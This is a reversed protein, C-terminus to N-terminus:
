AERHDACLTEYEERSFHSDPCILRRVAHGVDFDALPIFRGCVDCKLPAYLWIEAQTQTTM